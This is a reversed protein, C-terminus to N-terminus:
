TSQGQASWDRGFCQQTALLAVFEVVGQRTAETATGALTAALGLDAADGALAVLHATLADRDPGGSEQPRHLASEPAREAPPHQM